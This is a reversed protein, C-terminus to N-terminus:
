AHVYVLNEGCIFIEFDHQSMAQQFSRSTMKGPLMWDHPEIYVVYVDNLWEVNESFLDSEFGEIDIKAIFPHGGPIAFAEAMTIMSVGTEARSTQAAWGLGANQVSVFGATSGIAAAVVKVGERDGANKQLVELNGAEPEIAVISASPYKKHFWLSAAGVNAGADVIVPVKGDEVIESYRKWIRAGVAPYRRGIDYEGDKFVQRFTAADSEGSRLHVPGVEPITVDALKTDIVSALHRMLFQPGFALVDEFNVSLFNWLEM